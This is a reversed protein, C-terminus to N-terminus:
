LTEQSVDILDAIISLLEVAKKHEKTTKMLGEKEKGFDDATRFISIDNDELYKVFAGRPLEQGFWLECEDKAIDVPVLLGMITDPQHIGDLCPDIRSYPSLQDIFKRRKLFEIFNFSRFAHRIPDFEETEEPVEISDILEFTKSISEKQLPL